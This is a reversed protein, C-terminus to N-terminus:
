ALSAALEQYAPHLEQWRARADCPERGSLYAALDELHIQDGAGYAAIQELPLGRDEIVLITQDGDATLTVEIVGDPEDPSETLLLLRQPPQCVQVRCTGEWGSAFYHARYEGGQRLDGEVEGLWHALRSPDTLASWLDERGVDFRDELRVMGKGDATGLAGLTRVSGSTDPTM